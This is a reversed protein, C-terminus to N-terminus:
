KQNGMEPLMVNVTEKRAHVAPTGPSRLSHIYFLVARAGNSGNRMGYFNLPRVVFADGFRAEMYQPKEVGDGLQLEIAGGLVRFLFHTDSNQEFPKVAGPELELLGWGCFPRLPKHACGAAGDADSVHWQRQM